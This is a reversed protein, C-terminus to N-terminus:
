QKEMAVNTVCTCQWTIYTCQREKKYKEGGHPYEALDSRQGRSVLIEGCKTYGNLEYM